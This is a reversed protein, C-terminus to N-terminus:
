IILHIWCGGLLGVSFLSLETLIELFVLDESAHRGEMVVGILLLGLVTGRRFVVHELIIARTWSTEDALLVSLEALIQRRLLCEM